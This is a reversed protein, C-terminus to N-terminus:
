ASGTSVMNVLIEPDPMKFNPMSLKYVALGEIAAFFAASMEFPDVSRVEGTKQGASLVEAFTLLARNSEAMLKNLPEPGEMVAAQIVLMFYYASDEFDDIVGLIMKATYRIKEIPPLQM